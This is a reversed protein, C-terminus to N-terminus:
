GCEAVAKIIDGRTVIGVIKDNEVIPIRNIGKDVMIKAVVVASETPAATIVSATMVDSVSLENMNGTKLGKLIDSQCVIGIMKGNKDVVPMGAINFLEFKNMVGYLKESPQCTVVAKNMLEVVKM